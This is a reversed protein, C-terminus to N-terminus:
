ICSGITFEISINDHHCLSLLTFCQKAAAKLVPLSVLKARVRKPKFCWGFKWTCINYTLGYQGDLNEKWVWDVYDTGATDPAIFLHLQQWCLYSDGGTSVTSAELHNCHCRSYILESLM